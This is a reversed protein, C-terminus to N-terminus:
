KEEVGELLRKSKLTFNSSYNKVEKLSLVVLGHRRNRSVLGAPHDGAAAGFKM